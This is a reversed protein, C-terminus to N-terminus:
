GKKMSDVLAPLIKEVSRGMVYGGLGTEGTDWLKLAEAEGLDSASWGLWRAVSLGAFTLM